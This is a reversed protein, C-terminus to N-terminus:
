WTAPDHPNIPRIPPVPEGREIAAASVPSYVAARTAEAQARAQQAMARRALIGGIAPVLITIITVFYDELGPAVSAGLIVLVGFVAGILTKMTAKDAFISGITLAPELAMAENEPVTVGTGAGHERNRTINTTM